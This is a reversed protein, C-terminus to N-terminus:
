DKLSQFEKSDNDYGLVQFYKAFEISLPLGCLRSRNYCNKIRFIIGIFLNYRYGFAKQFLKEEM